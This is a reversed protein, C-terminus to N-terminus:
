LTRFVRKENLVPAGQTAREGAAENAPEASEAAADSRGPEPKAKATFTLGCGCAADQQPNHWKFGQWMLTHEYDLVAGDLYKQCRPDLYSIPDASGHL